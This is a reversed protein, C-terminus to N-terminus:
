PSKIIVLAFGNLLGATDLPNLQPLTPLDLGGGCPSALRTRDFIMEKNPSFSCHPSVVVYIDAFWSSHRPLGSTSHFGAHQTRRTQVLRQYVADM